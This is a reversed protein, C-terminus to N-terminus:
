WREVRGQVGEEARTVPCMSHLGSRCLPGTSCGPWGALLPRGRWLCAHIYLMCMYTCTCAHVHIDGGGDMCTCSFNSIYARFSHLPFSLLSPFLCVFM